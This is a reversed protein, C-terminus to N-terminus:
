SKSQIKRFFFSDANLIWLLAEDNLLTFDLIRKATWDRHVTWDSCDIFVEFSKLFEIFRSYCTCIFYAAWGTTTWNKLCIQKSFNKRHTRSYAILNFILLLNLERKEVLLFMMIFWGVGDSINVIFYYVVAILYLSFLSSVYFGDLFLITREFMESLCGTRGWQSIRGGRKPLATFPTAICFCTTELDALDRLRCSGPSFARELSVGCM